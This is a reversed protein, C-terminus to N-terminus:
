FVVESSYLRSYNKEPLAKRQWQGQVAAEESGAVLADLQEFIDSEDM